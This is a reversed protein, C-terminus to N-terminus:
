MNKQIVICQKLNILKITKNTTCTHKQEQYPDLRDNQHGTINMHESMCTWYRFITTIIIREGIFQSWKCKPLTIFYIDRDGGWDPIVCLPHVLAEIPVTVFSINFNTGM